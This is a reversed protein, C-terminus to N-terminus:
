IVRERFRSITGVYGFLIGKSTRFFWPLTKRIGQFVTTLSPDRKQLNWRNVYRVITEDDTFKGLDRYSTTFSGIRQDAERPKYDKSGEVKSISYHFEKLVGGATPMEIAIEINEPFAKAKVIESLRPNAGRASGGFFTSARGALLDDLDIVPQGSPGMCVIPVDLLVRDTFINEVSDKSEQDGTSRTSIQPAMLAMRKDYRKWYTYLDRGQLGAFIEGTGVTMAFFHKQREYGRPLEALMQGDKERVWISYLSPGEETTPSVVKEFDEAVDKFDPFEPKKDQAVALGATSALVAAASLRRIFRTSLM